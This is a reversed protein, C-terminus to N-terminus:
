TPQAMPQSKQAVVLVPKSRLRLAPSITSCNKASRRSAALVPRLSCVTTKMPMPSGISLRSATSAAMSRIAGFSSPASPQRWIVTEVTPILDELARDTLEAAEKNLAKVDVSM